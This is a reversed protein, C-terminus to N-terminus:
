RETARILAAGVGAGLGCGGACSLFTVLFSELPHDKPVDYISELFEVGALGGVIGGLVVLLAWGAFFSVPLEPLPDKHWDRM